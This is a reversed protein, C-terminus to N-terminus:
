LNSMVRARVRRKNLVCVFVCVYMPVSVFVYMCVYVCISDPMLLIQLERSHAYARLSVWLTSLVLVVSPKMICQAVVFNSDCSLGVRRTALYTWRRSLIVRRMM